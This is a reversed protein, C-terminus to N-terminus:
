RAVVTWEDRRRADNVAEDHQRKREIQELKLIMDKAAFCGAIEGPADKWEPLVVNDPAPDYYEQVQIKYIDFNRLTLLRYRIKKM